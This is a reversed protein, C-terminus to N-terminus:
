NAADTHAAIPYNVMDAAFAAEDSESGQLQRKTRGCLFDIAALTLGDPLPAREALTTALNM